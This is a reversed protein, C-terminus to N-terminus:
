GILHIFEYFELKCFTYLELETLTMPRLTEENKIVILGFLYDIIFDRKFHLLYIMFADRFSTAQEFEDEISGILDALSTKGKRLTDNLCDYFYGFRDNVPNEAIHFRECIRKYLTPLRPSLHHVMMGFFKVRALCTYYLNDFEEQRKWKGIMRLRVCKGVVLIPALHVAYVCNRNEVSFVQSTFVPEEAVSNQYVM